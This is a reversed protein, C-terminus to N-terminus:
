SGKQEALISEIEARLNRISEGVHRWESLLDAQIDVGALEMAQVRGQFDRNLDLMCKLKLRLASTRVWQLGTGEPRELFTLEHVTGAAAPDPFLEGLEESAPIRGLAILTTFIRSRLPDNFDEPALLDMIVRREEGERLLMALMLKERQEQSNAEGDGERSPANAEVKPAKAGKSERSAASRGRDRVPSNRRTERLARQLVGRDVGFADSLEEMLSELRLDGDSFATFDELIRRIAREREAPKDGRAVVLERMYTFYDPARRIRERFVEGGEAQVMSDPDEGDALGLVLPRLGVSLLIGATKVAARQGAADGDTIVCVRDTYRTLLKAQDSSFATGCAAVAEPIGAQHLSIVDFYGEVLLALKSKRIERWALDLGYLIAKKTYVPSDSSNIYKPLSDDMVRAGFGLVRGAVSRVPFIIRNRFADYHGPGSSKRRILGLEECREPEFEQKLLHQFLQRWSQEAFGLQFAAISEVTIGRALLYDRAPGAQPAKALHKAYFEASSENIRHYLDKRSRTGGSGPGREIPIGARNALFELAERFQLGDQEMVFSFVDGGKHCGFCYYNQREQNVNFSPTNEHHFPCLGQWNSGSRRLKLYQGVLEVIDTAERVREKFDGFGQGPTSM